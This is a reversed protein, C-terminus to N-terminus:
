YKKRQLIVFLENESPIIQYLEYNPYEYGINNLCGELSYSHATILIYDKHDYYM